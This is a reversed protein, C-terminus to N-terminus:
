LVETRRHSRINGRRSGCGREGGVDAIRVRAPCVGPRCGIKRRTRAVRGSARRWGARICPQQLLGATVGDPQLM